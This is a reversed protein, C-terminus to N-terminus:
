TKATSLISTPVRTSCASKVEDQQNMWKTAIKKHNNNKLTADEDFIRFRGLQLVTRLFTSDMPKTLCDALMIATSIWRRLTHGASQEKILMVEVTTRWEECNPTALKNDLRVSVQLRNDTTGKPVTAPLDRTDAMSVESRPYLAVYM